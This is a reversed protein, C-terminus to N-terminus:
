PRSKSKEKEKEMEKFLRYEDEKQTEPILEYKDLVEQGKMLKMKEAEKMEKQEDMLEFRLPEKKQQTKGFFFTMSMRHTKELDIGNVFAYDLQFFQERFGVGISYNESEFQIRNGGRIYFRRDSRMNGLAYEGGIRYRVSEGMAREVQVALLLSGIDEQELARISFGASDVRPLNQPTTRYSIQQGLNQIAAGLSIRENLTGPFPFFMIGADVAYANGSFTDAIRSYVAKPSIGIAFTRAFRAGISLFGSYGTEANFTKTTGDAFNIDLNGATYYHVGAGLGLEAYSSKLLPHAYTALAHRSQDQTAAYSLATEPKKNLSLGAPNTNMSGAGEVSVSTIGGMGVIRSNLIEQLFTASTSGTGARLEAVCLLLPVVWWLGARRM